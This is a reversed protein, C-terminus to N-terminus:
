CKVSTCDPWSRRAQGPTTPLCSVCAPSCGDRMICCASTSPRQHPLPHIQSIETAFVPNTQHGYSLRQCQMVLQVIESDTTFDLEPSQEQVVYDIGPEKIAGYNEDLAHIGLAEARAIQRWRKASPKATGSEWQSVAAPTVALLEALRTQTLDHQARLKRIRQACDSPVANPAM